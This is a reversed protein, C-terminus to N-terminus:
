NSPLIIFKLLGLFLKNMTLATATKDIPRNLPQPAVFDALEAFVGELLLLGFVLVVVVEFVLESLAAWDLVLLGDLLEVLVLLEDPLEELALLM